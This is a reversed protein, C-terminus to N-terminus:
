QVIKKDDPSLEFPKLESEGFQGLAEFHGIAEENGPLIAMDIGIEQIKLIFEKLDKIKVLTTLQCYEGAKFTSLFKKEEETM